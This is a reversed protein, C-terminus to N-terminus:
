PGKYEYKNKENEDHMQKLRWAKFEKRRMMVEFGEPATKEMGAPQLGLIRELGTLNSGEKPGKAFNKVSIPGMAETVHTFYAKLWNPVNAPMSTDDERPPAIPDGRWDKGTFLMEGALRPATSLKNIAEQRPNSTWGFVDKMYGPPVIREPEGTTADTGGTRPAMLDQTDQPGEGTKLYQYTAGTIGYVIPLAIAYAQRQTMGKTGALTDTMAGGLERVTGLNWSYSRMALMSSQKLLKTWFINDQIMEGFRNDVSDIIKRAAAVQEPRTATPNARMWDAMNEYAAGNKLKPIYTQFLPHMVTDMIRGVNKAVLGAQGTIPSGRFQSVDSLIETKLSGRKWATFFSGAASNGIDAAHERGKFRAGGETLIDVIHRMEPTMAGGLAGREVEGGTRALTFPAVPAKLITWMAQLPNRRGGQQIARAVENVMAEQGMTLAHYGSFALELATVANNTKRAANYAAGYEPGFREVGQGIFNNYIRAWNEPAFAQRGTADVAGRGMLPVYGSPINQVSVPHGSAGMANPRAFVINGDRVGEQFVRQQAIFKDMSTVYRMTAELPNTTVPELGARIGDEITPMSRAKMSAGSGQKGVGVYNQVYNTAAAPDKWFHPYYDEVFAMQQHTPLAAIKSARQEFQTRLTDALRQTQPNALPPAGSSRGEMYRILDFREPDSMTNVLPYHEEIAQATTATDRAAVGAERRISAVAPEAGPLAEPTFIKKGTIQAAGGRLGYYPIALSATFAPYEKPIGFNEEIPKGVVTNLGAEIPATAMKAAGTVADWLAGATGGSPGGMAEPRLDKFGQKSQEYGENAIRSEEAPYSTIPEIAKVYWPTSPPQATNNPQELPKTELPTWASSQTPVPEVSKVGWPNGPKPEPTVTIKLQPEAV